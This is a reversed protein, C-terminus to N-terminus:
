LYEMLAYWTDHTTVSRQSSIVLYVSNISSVFHLFVSNVKYTRTHIRIFYNNRTNWINKNRKASIQDRASSCLYFSRMRDAHRVKSMVVWRCSITKKQIYDFRKDRHRGWGNREKRDEQRNGTFLLGYLPFIPLVTNHKLIAGYATWTALRYRTKISRWVSNV